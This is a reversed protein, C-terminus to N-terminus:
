DGRLEANTLQDDLKVMDVTESSQVSAFELFDGEAALMDDFGLNQQACCSSTVTDNTDRMHYKKLLNAHMLKVKGNIDIKYDVPGVAEVVEFPGKWQMVLKNNDTPLLLLVFDGPQFQRQKVKHKDYNAKYKNQARTMEQKVLDFTKDLRERLDVVYRYSSLVEPETNEASWIERLINM